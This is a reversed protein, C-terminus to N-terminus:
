TNRWEEIRTDGLETRQFKIRLRSWFTPGNVTDSWTFNGIAWYVDIEAEIYVGLHGWDEKELEEETVGEDLLAYKFNEIKM